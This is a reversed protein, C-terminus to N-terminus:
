SNKEGQLADVQLLIRHKATWFRQLIEKVKMESFRKQLDRLKEVLLLVQHSIKNSFLSVIPQRYCRWKSQMM